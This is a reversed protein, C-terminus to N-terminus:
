NLANDLNHVKHEFDLDDNYNYNIKNIYYTKPNSLTNTCAIKGVKWIKTQRNNYIKNVHNDSSKWKNLSKNLTNVFIITQKFYLETYETYLSYSIFYSNRTKIDYNKTNSSFIQTCHFWQYKHVVSCNLELDFFSIFLRYGSLHTNQIYLLYTTSLITPFM